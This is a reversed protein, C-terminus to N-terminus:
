VQIEETDNISVSYAERFESYSLVGDKVIVKHGEVLPFKAADQWLAVEIIDSTDQITINRVLVDGNKVRM